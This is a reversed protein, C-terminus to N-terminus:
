KDFLDDPNENPIFDLLGTNTLNVLEINEIKCKECLKHWQRISRSSTNMDRAYNWSKHNNYDTDKGNFHSNKGAMLYAIGNLEVGLFYIKKCGLYVGLSLGQETVSTGSSYITSLDSNFNNFLLSISNNKIWFINEKNRLKSFKDLHYWKANLLLNVNPNKKYIIDLYELPWTGDALKSDVIIHYKPKIIEYSPHDFCRNVMIVIEDKLKKIDFANLSPGNGLLFIRKNIHANKLLVNKKLFSYKGIIKKIYFEILEYLNILDIVLADAIEYPNYKLKKFIKKIM